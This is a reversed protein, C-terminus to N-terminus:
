ILGETKYWDVTAQVGEAVSVHTEFGLQKKAKSTDCEISRTFFDM